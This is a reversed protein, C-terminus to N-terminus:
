AFRSADDVLANRARDSVPFRAERRVAHQWCVELLDCGGKPDPVLPTERPRGLRRLV